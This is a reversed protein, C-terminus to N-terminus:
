QDSRIQLAIDDALAKLREVLVQLQQQDDTEKNTSKSWATNPTAYARRPLMASPAYAVANTM